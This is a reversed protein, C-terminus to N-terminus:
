DPGMVSGLWSHSNGELLVGVEGGGSGQGGESGATGFVFPYSVRTLVGSPCRKFFLLSIFSFGLM